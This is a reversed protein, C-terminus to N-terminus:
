KLAKRLPVRGFGGHHENGRRTTRAVLSKPRCSSRCAPSDGDGTVSSGRRGRRRGTRGDDPQDGPIISTGPRDLSNVWGPTGIGISTWMRQPQEPSGTFRGDQRPLADGRPLSAPEGSYFPVPIQCARAAVRGPHM